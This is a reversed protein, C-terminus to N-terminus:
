RTALPSYRTTLLSHRIASLSHRTASLSHRTTLASLDFGFERRLARFEQPRRSILVPKLRRLVEGNAEGSKAKGM